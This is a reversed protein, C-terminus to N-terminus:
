ANANSAEPTHNEHLYKLAALTLAFHEPDRQLVAMGRKSALCQLGMSLVETSEVTGPTMGRYIKGVYYDFFGDDLAVESRGYSRSGTLEALPKIPRSDSIERHRKALLRRAANLLEPNHYEVFHGLEHWLTEKDLASGANLESKSRSASARNKRRVISPTVLSGATMRYFAALDGKMQEMSYGAKLSADSIRIPTAEARARAAEESMPSAGIVSEVLKELEGAEGSDDVRALEARIMAVGQALAKNAARYGEKYDRLYKDYPLEGSRNANSLADSMKDAWTQIANRFANNAVLSLTHPKAVAAAEKTAGIAEQLADVLWAQHQPYKKLHAKMDKLNMVADLARGDGLAAAIVEDPQREAPGGLEIQPMARIQEAMATVSEELKAVSPDTFDAGISAPDFQEGTIWEWIAKANPGSNSIVGMAYMGGSGRRLDELKAGIGRWSRAKLERAELVSAKLMAAHLFSNMDLKSAGQIVNSPFWASVDTYSPWRMHYTARLDNAQEMKRAAEKAEQATKASVVDQMAPVYLDSLGGQTDRLSSAAYNLIQTIERASTAKAIMRMVAQGEYSSASELLAEIAPKRCAAFGEFLGRQGPEGTALRENVRALISVLDLPEAGFMDSAASGQRILEDCIEEAMAKFASGMRKASRNNDAIFRALAATEPSTDGFLSQQSLYERVDQGAARAERVATTADVLASLAAADLNKNMRTSDGLTDAAQKHAEGSLYAMQVFSPAAVNLATLINRIEPDPEEVALRLLSESKYAKAFIAAQIRDVVQKTPRGDATLYGAAQEAGMKTLFSQVFGRNSAALLDGGESPTFLAMMKDDIQEADVRAVETPAMGQLDSLNSDRAFQARNVDDLRVRVLVPERMSRVKSEELGYLGANAVLYDRYRGANGESYARIISLTRGNGSEVVLDPGVIPAGHSSLGSDALQAPRLDRSMKQIQMVSSKRTRDRPQLEQPYDTNIRGDPTNSPVLASAEVMVFATKVEAGKGTVVHSTRGHQPCPIMYLEIATATLEEEEPRAAADVSEFLARYAGSGKGPHIIRGTEMMAKLRELTMKKASVAGGNMRVTALVTMGDKTLPKVFYKAGGSKPSLVLEPKSMVLESVSDLEVGDALEVVGIPTHIRSSTLSSRGAPPMAAARSIMGAISGANAKRPQWAPMVGYILAPRSSAADYLFDNVVGELFAVGEDSDPQAIRGGERSEDLQFLRGDKLRIYIPYLGSGRGGFRFMSEVRGSQIVKELAPLDHDDVIAAIEGDDGLIVTGDRAGTKPATKFKFKLLGGDRLGLAVELHYLITTVNTAKRIKAAITTM